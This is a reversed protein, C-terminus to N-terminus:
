WLFNEEAAEAVRGQEQVLAKADELAPMFMVDDDLSKAKAKEGFQAAYDWADMGDMVPVQERVKDFGQVDMKVPAINNEPDKVMLVIDPEGLKDYPWGDPAFEQNFKVRAVPKFGFQSYLNPLFGNVDYADLTKAYVSAEGLMEKVNANSDPHKFVSVLDADPTVAMGALSDESLFLGTKPDKYFDISKVEVAKGVPHEDYVKSAKESTMEEPQLTLATAMSAYKKRLFEEYEKRDKFKPMQNIRNPEPSYLNNDTKFVPEDSQRFPNYNDRINDYNFAFAKSDGKTLGALAEVDYSRFSKNVAKSDLLERLGPSAM